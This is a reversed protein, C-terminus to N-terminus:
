KPRFRAFSQSEAQTQTLDPSQVMHGPPHQREYHNPTRHGQSAPRGYQDPTARPDNPTRRPDNPTRRPDSPTRRPDTSTGRHFEQPRSEPYRVPQNLRSAYRTGPPHTSTRSNLAIWSPNEERVTLGKLTRSQPCKLPLSYRQQHVPLDQPRDLRSQPNKRENHSSLDRSVDWTEDTDLDTSQFDFVVPPLSQAPTDTIIFENSDTEKRFGAM